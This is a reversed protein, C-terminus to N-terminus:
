NWGGRLNPDDFGALQDVLSLFERSQEKPVIVQLVVYQDGRSSGGPTAVGRGRLRLKRGSSSGAPVSVTVPGDITPVSIKAGKVAEAYTVPVDLLIDSGERRFYPHPIMRLRILLDGSKGRGVGETGKGAVRITSGDRAGAPIKVKIREVGETM